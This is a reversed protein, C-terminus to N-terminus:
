SGYRTSTLEVRSEKWAPNYGTLYRPPWTVIFVTISIWLVFCDLLYFYGEKTALASDRGQANELARFVSRIIIAVCSISMSIVLALWHRMLGHPRNDWETRMRTRIRNIFLAFIVTYLLFSILQAILGGIFLKKGMDRKDPDDMATLGGGTAQVFFTFVDSTVFIKTLWRPSLALHEVANLHFALRSLLMYVGAIFACPSLLIILNMTAYKMISTPDQAYVIRLLLGAVYFGAGIMIALMYRGWHRTSWIICVVITFIYCGASILAWSKSPIYHLPTKSLDVEGNGQGSVILCKALLYLFVTIWRAPFFRSRHM